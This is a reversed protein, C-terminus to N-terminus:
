KNSKKRNCPRCLVQCNTMTTKGGESWPKIHDAECEDFAMYQGCRCCRGSQNEYAQRKMAESFKRISLYKEDKSLVYSYIGSKRTVDDDCMMAQIDKELAMLSPFTVDKYRNYLYGWQIGKMEKRYTVFTNEIWKIVCEFYDWLEQADEDLHHKHMYEEITIGDRDAIWELATELYDQRIVDGRLYQKALSQAICGRRSFRRKADALWEGTFVANRLEQETLQEGAINITKFWELKEATDGDCIYVTFEYNKILEKQEDTLNNFYKNEGDIRISFQGACFMCVSITRQQGDILEYDGYSDIGWYMVNLPRAKLLTDIVKNRKEDDYVFERQFPPRVDLRGGYARVGNEDSNRYGDMIDKIKIKTEKIKM